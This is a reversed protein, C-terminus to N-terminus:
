QGRAALAALRDGVRDDNADGQLFEARGLEVHLDRGVHILLFLGLLDFGEQSKEHRHDRGFEGAFYAERHFVDIPAGVVAALGAERATGSERATGAATPGSEGAAGVATPGAGVAAIAVLRIRELRIRILSSGRNLRSLSRPALGTKGATGAVHAAARHGSTRTEGAAKAAARHGSAGPKGATGPEGATGSGIGAAGAILRLLVVGGHRQGALIAGQHHRDVDVPFLFIRVADGGVKATVKVADGALAQQHASVRMCAWPLSGLAACVRRVVAPRM